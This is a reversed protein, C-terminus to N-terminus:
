IRLWYDNMMRKKFHALGGMMSNSEFHPTGDGEICLNLEKVYFDFRLPQKYVCKPFRKQTEYELCEDQLEEEIAREIKSMKCIPCGCKYKVRNVIRSSWINNCIGCIWLGSKGSKPRLKYKDLKNDPHWELMLKPHMMGLSNCSKECCISPTRSCVGCLGSLDRSKTLISIQRNIWHANCVNDRCKVRIVLDSDATHKNIDGYEDMWYKAIHPHTM